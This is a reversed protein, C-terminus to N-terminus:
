KNEWRALQICNGRHAAHDGEHRLGRSCLFGSSPDIEACSKGTAIPLYGFEGPSIEREGRCIASHEPLVVDGIAEIRRVMTAPYWAVTRGGEEKWAGRAAVIEAIDQLAYPTEIEFCQEDDRLIVRFRM